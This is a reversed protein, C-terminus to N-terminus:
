ADLKEAISEAEGAAEERRREELALLVDSRTVVGVVDGDSVVPVRGAGSASVLRMVEALPTDEPSTVVDSSMVSKVPAHSLGHGIAKDLDERTVVGVLREPEGVLMGSQRHRQCLVMAHAVTDDVSVFRAPRSMIEGATLGGRVANPLAQLVAARADELSGRFTASAAQSHGGGGLAAAIASADLEAVRTRVVCFAREDMEVLCVLARCDTLDVIKHALNSIGEVYEPWRLATVLVEHGGVEHPELGAVLADLLAREREALPTHLYQAVMEQSAGHRMCWALAEADRITTGSYGLSGTDEHIGLAFATAEIPSVEVEREALIAVMTTTLAGDESRVVNEPKVWDLEEGAHHDFVVVEVRPSRAASEFEGLRAPDSTEVVILREVDAPDIRGPEAVDLEEAHLRYFDRVNRNLSGSLAIVADPYLRRAALMAAFADFDTNAHTVIVQM